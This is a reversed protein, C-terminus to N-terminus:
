KIFMTCDVFCAFWLAAIFCIGVVLWGLLEVITMMRKPECNETYKKMENKMFERTWFEASKYETINM